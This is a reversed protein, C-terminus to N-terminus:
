WAGRLALGNELPELRLHAQQRSPDFNSHIMPVSFGVAAGLVGGWIVDRPAHVGYHVRLAGATATLAIAAGEAIFFTTNLAHDDTSHLWLLTAASVYTAGASSTHGSPFSKWAEYDGEAEYMEQIHEDGEAEPFAEQFEWSTFPRPQSFQVKTLATIAGVTTLSEVVLLSDAIGARADGNVIGGAVGMGVVTLVPGNVFGTETHFKLPHGFFDSPIRAGPHYHPIYNDLPEFTEDVHGPKVSDAIFYTAATVGIVALDAPWVVGIGPSHLKFTTGEYAFDGAAALSALAILLTM